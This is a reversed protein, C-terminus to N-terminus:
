YDVPEDNLINQEVVYLINIIVEGNEVDKTTIIKDIIKAERTLVTYLSKTLEEEAIKIIDEESLDVEKEEKEYYYIKNFLKGSVNIKDYEEFGKIAKKLYIKRGLINLYIDKDIKGNRVMEKGKVKLVMSKEYFTNAMVVGDPSVEYPKEENGNIGEILVNGEEVIDGVHVKSRGSFVYVRTVEGSIKATLNGMKSEAIIPPNVKEEITVKLTSGEIRIRIWLIDSNLDEVKRELLKVDVDQKKIGPQVGISYLQQRLEYPSVNKVTNIEIRWIYSSLFLMLGIFLFGGLILAMKGKYKILLFLYGIKDIIKIKGDFKKVISKIDKYDDYDVILKLTVIDVRTVKKIHINENWLINLIKEPNLMKIEIVLKGTEFIGNLM